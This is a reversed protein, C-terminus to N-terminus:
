KWKIESLHRQARRGWYSSRWYFSRKLMKARYLWEKCSQDLGCSSTWMAMAATLYFEIENNRTYPVKSSQNIAFELCTKYLEQVNDLAPVDIGFQHVLLEALGGYYLAMGVTDEAVEAVHRLHSLVERCKSHNKSYLLTQALYPLIKLLMSTYHVNLAIRFAEYGVDVASTIETRLFRVEVIKILTNLVAVLDSVRPHKEVELSHICDKIATDELKRQKKYAIHVYHSSEIVLAIAPMKKYLPANRCTVLEWFHSSVDLAVRPDRRNLFVRAATCLCFEEEEIEDVRCCQVVRVAYNSANKRYDKPINRGLWQFALKIEQLSAEINGYFMQINARMRSIAIRKLKLYREDVNEWTSAKFVSESSELYEEAQKIDDVELSCHAAALFSELARGRMGSQFYHNGIQGFANAKMKQCKCVRLDAKDPPSQMLFEDTATSYVEVSLYEKCFRCQLAHEELCTAIDQHIESKSDYTLTAYITKHVAASHFRMLSGIQGCQPCEPSDPVKGELLYVFSSVTNSAACTIFHQEILKKLAVNIEATSLASSLLKLLSVEFVKGCVSAKKLLVIEQENLMEMRVVTLAQLSDPVQVDDMLGEGVVDCIPYGEGPRQERLEHDDERALTFERKLRLESTTNSNVTQILNKQKLVQLIEVMAAPNGKTYEKLLRLIQNHIGKVSLRQFCFDPLFEKSLPQIDVVTVSKAMIKQIHIPPLVRESHPISTMAVVCPHQSTLQGFKDLLEWSLTDMYNADDVALICPAKSCLREMIMTLHDKAQTVSKVQWPVDVLSGASALKLTPANKLRIIGKNIVLPTSSDPGLMDDLITNNESNPKLGHSDLLRSLLFCVSSFPHRMTRVGAHCSASKYGKKEASKMTWFLLHSKGCGTEGRLLLMHKALRRKVVFDVLFSDIVDKEHVMGMVTGPYVAVEDMVEEETSLQVQFVRGMHEIGKLKRWELEKFNNPGLVLVSRQYTDEDCVVRVDSYKSMLRAALNVKRGIVTYEQRLPHGIIGCFTMGSTIGATVKINMASVEHVLKNSCMLANCTENKGKYGPLGFVALFSCGKDFTIVKNLVGDTEKLASSVIRYLASLTALDIDIFDPMCVFVITVHRMESLFILEEQTKINVVVPSIFRKLLPADEFNLAYLAPRVGSFGTFSVREEESVSPDFGLVKVMDEPLTGFIYRNQIGKSELYGWAETTLIIDGATCLMEANRVYEVVSGSASYHVSDFEDNFFHYELYGTAIGIKVRLTVEICTPWEGYNKQINLSCDVVTQITEALTSEDEVKWICFIADGAFKFIDGGATFIHQIIHGFFHNLTRTLAEIGLAGTMSYTETLATFGSIDAFLVVTMAVKAFPLKSFAKEHVVELCIDPLFTGNLLTGSVTESVVPTLNLLCRSATKHDCAVVPESFHVFSCVYYCECSRRAHSGGQKGKEESEEGASPARAHGAPDTRGAKKYANWM